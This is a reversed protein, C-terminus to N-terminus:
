SVVLRTERVSLHLTSSYSVNCLKHSAPAAHEVIPTSRRPSWALQYVYHRVPCYLAPLNDQLYKPSPVLVLHTPINRESSLPLPVRLFLLPPSTLEQAIYISLLLYMWVLFSQCWVDVGEM